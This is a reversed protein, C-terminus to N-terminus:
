PVKGAQQAMDAPYCVELSQGKPQECICGELKMPSCTSPGKAPLAYFLQGTAAGTRVFGGFGLFSLRSTPQVNRIMEPAPAQVSTNGTIGANVTVPSWQYNAVLGGNAGDSLGYVVQVPKSVGMEPSDFQGQVTDISLTETGMLGTISGATVRAETKGDYVKNAASTGVFQLPAKDITLEGQQYTISYNGVDQGTALVNSGYVGANRGSALGSVRIDDGAVFGELLSASQQQTQGNYTVREPRATVSATKPTITLTANGLTVDYNAADAGTVTMASTYQGVHRGSPLAGFSLADGAVFGSGQTGNLSQVLGNYVVTLGLASLSAPRRSINLSANNYTINYNGADAGTASLSSLYSGANRGSALGTAQVDDGAVFGTYTLGTQSQVTGNYVTSSTQAAISANARDMTGNQNNVYTIAYNGSVDANSADVLRVGTVTVTKGSGANKDTFAQTGGFGVKDGAAAGVLTGVTGGGPATTNGDYTKRAASATVVLPAPTIGATSSAQGTISYNGSDAGGFSSSLTVAKNTGAHRTDFQGTATVSLQDGAVIGNFVAGSTQVSAQTNGDYVKDLAQLGSVTIAKPTISGTGSLQASGLVYNAQDAGQLALGSLTFGQPGTNKDTFNGSAFKAQLADGSLTGSPSLTASVLTNNGDYVKTVDSANLSMQLPTITLVGGNVEHGNFQNTVTSSLSALAYTHNGANLYGGSSYTPTGALGTGLTITNGTNDTGQWNSGNTSNLNLTYLNAGNCNSQVLCYQATVTGSAAVGAQPAKRQGYADNQSSITVLLKDAPIVQLNGPTVSVSYNGNLATPTTSLSYVGSLSGVGPFQAGTYNRDGAGPAGGTLANAASEGNVLGTYSFGQNFALNADQTVFMKTDNVKINLAAPNIKGVAGSTSSPLSYNNLDTNTQAAYDVLQLSASVTGTGPNASVNKDAYVAATQTISAGEGSVWGSTAFHANNVTASDLGDYIKAVSGQLAVTIPAKDITSTTNGVLTLTYNGGNNGDQLTANNFTISKTGTGANKDTFVLNAATVTDGSVLQASLAALDAASTSYNLSGDYTKSVPGASLNLAKPTINATTSAQATVTYNGLDTGGLSHTLTVVKDTGVNKDSFAGTSTLSLNDGAVRGDWVVASTALTAQTNGDYTKPAATIGSLSLAKPTIDAQDTMAGTTILQYNRWDGTGNDRSLTLVDQVTVTKNSAVRKDAFSGLGSVSLSEGSLTGSVSGGTISAVTTGDYVKDAATISTLMVDKPTINATTTLAGTTTLNYNSWNGTGNTKTLTSVNAVTVTKNIDANKDSFTGAGSIALTESGVGTSIAGSTITATNNGDYVKHAATISSLSVDKRTIDATTTLAGTTTLNYNNWNGSGNVKTLASVNAVTVTKGNAANADSFTGSGSIGLTESGVGTNITGATISATNNGNYVKHAATIGDLTVDKRTINAQTNLAGTNTLNYNSWNGTGNTKTLTTVDTVTVTKNNAANADSFSGSGSIALTESGVGTSIAGSTITATNNGDYVKDLATISSLSVDKRTINAQTTMGGTTTLNYNSWDGTGNTKTLTSVNAVTVTKGDAANADSFTGSGSIALTESGVGTNIAGSTISATNNSDYVKHAATIGDLTVDKRTIDATTTLAGTTTLNYNNWNGSGNVKTLTSVNAVTVTKGDAANADSFTGSGSIALTESGVGTSIAGSTITATNNGDYVKHAATISSLSVDKRTINAQTTMGGTTTLNYNSWDGSGNTKTLATVDTVSVTKGDAANADSFTGAGSIALTESGVGTNIAGASITATNNGNYVKHAATIGDLTVSKRTITAQTTVPGATTLNYNNWNGTGNTKTLTSVNAVTVTKNIDANKDSFTGSGSIALTESGVGTSIAGTSITATNNGDYVKDLATISSLSVDKRTINAQTTMAGTTTLNYNNWNGSGNAKTLATVDTVSVTKGDAANADSFSGVGSVSLSETGVTGSVVGSTIAAADSGNYVKNAATISSLSVNKRTINATTTIPGTTTLRYNSWSGSGDTQTLTSTLAVTVVKNDAANADSFTGQGSIALTESGVGTSIAGSTITATNFGDYVKNDATISSLSVDKRTINAQTTMPGSNTLQYNSWDGGNAGNVRTLASVDAVTVTKGNGANKDSFSGLGVGSVSLTETGVTGAVVGSAISAADSGDYAKDSATISTLTVAQRTINATTSLGGTTTLNYNSWSGTGNTKTLTSVNAVTVTKNNDANKDSFTGSGSIALTESGVGTSIAGSTITATNNGDYVKHAATISSLTVDKRTINATTTLSGTTTLNYNNWDGTGNAKNLASVNAVTVTKGNAANADSFIGSGSIALTESGVGTSIAGSTINATNNGDYAKHAATISSLSVDKPTINASASATTFALAYNGADTGSLGIQTISVGKGNAANKDVFHATQTFGLNDGSVMDSSSGSVSANTLGDYVKHSATYSVTLSKASINATSTASTNQLSYNGADAGGLAIGNVTVTKSTGVDKNAFTASSHSLSVTDGSIIDASSGTVSALTNGNYTKNDASYSATLNKAWITSTTNDVYSVTYNGGSNGDGVTVGSLSVVKNGTGANKNDFVFTGGSLSDSGFLQTGNTAVATGSASTSRDYTKVVNASTLVLSARTISGNSGTLSNSMGSLHYNGADDGGLTINSITYNLGTGVNKQSFAGTGNISLKDGTVEGTLGVVVNSMATTGDYVKSVGTANPTVAKTNVSLNGVFVPAGVFNGGTVTPSLDKIAYNGVVTQGTSSTSALTNGAYPKLVARVTTGLGDSFTYDNDTGTRNLTIITTNDTKLYKATTVYTPATGYTVSQNTTSILLQDAPVITLTGNTYAIEYNNSSLGKPTLAGTYVGAAGNGADNREVLLTGGLVSSTEGGVLGAHQVGAFNVNDALGVFRADDNAKVTLAAKNIVSNTNDVYNITYNATMDANSADKITVGSARVEKNTGANANLFAQTGASNVVDGAGAGALTGVTGIGSASLTADYTKTVANATVTLNAKDIVLNANNVTINYNTADQGSVVLGSGYTGANKGSAQGAVTITDGAVFGSRTEASQNQVAGNYTVQTSTASVTASKPTISATTSTQTSVTYNGLDAGGLVHSLSVNKLQGVNKDSFEGTSQVTLADGTIKGDFVAGVTSATAATGGDYVKNVATIGSLTIAKPAISATTSLAGSQNLNYNSWVGTGDTRTLATVDAVTVTKNDGANKNNFTGAGSVALTETGVGTTIVGATITANVNGDYTKNSATLSAITVNKPTINASTTFAGTTSMQYNNWSGTGNVPTLTSVDAVSVVKATGVNKNAFSGAATGSLSLTEGNVTGSFSAGTIDATVLGDYVKHGATLNSLSVSQPTIKASATASTNQLSYNLADTGSLSLGSVSVTKTVVQGAGDRAVNADAFSATTHGIVVNDSGIIDASTTGSVTAQSTANYAKDAATATATLAKPTVSVSSGTTTLPNYNSTLGGNTSSGLSLGTVSNLAQSTQVNKSALNTAHGSGTVTFTQGAVGSATLYQGAFTTTADYVRTGSLTLNAKDISLGGHTYGINYNSLLTGGTGTLSLSDNYSGANTGAAYGSISFGDGSQTGVITAGSNTQASGNYTVTNNVGTVTLNAKGITLGGHTYSISYNSLLTSGVAAVSLSDAYATTSANTGTGYGSITFGDGSQTGVITAGTNTQAAGNYTVTNNAGTVTLSRPTVNVSTSATTWNYNSALAGNVGVLNLSGLGQLTQASQVNQSTLTGSGTATFTEGNVGAISTFSSGAFATGADYIKSGTATLNAKGITLSGHTYAISYNSLLTSGTGTLTLSDAYATTSANTGTGYGSITFSDSGQNGSISAGTNTQASGNYTVTNTAGTVTLSRPTVSASTSATTWNYNSALAGSVGVLSLDGLGQLTQASQVNPSALTGSGTATFTEGNVGAISTFNSGAFATGADYVKSGTATLNAKGITLGGQTYNVNYNSLLTSGAAAVSLNDAYATTSANTGAGYGSITFDDSGQKGAITAGTNVQASGSYTVTNNSGTVTLNAKGITLGGHTYSISYNSLLTSGAAAVSLSDAYATTSANTGTGYGSVTFSDSGQTGVITAGTNTQAAGNYTVTNNAGTVTLSRPTVSVSTSATTWNYNSALAGSVGVLSLSGLGQLTQASQVNPSALTGSGTATFTEGNVGAISTFNSGAFATGADYVKSGTATLNAKDIVLNANSVTVSYNGADAGSVALSSAYTGANKGSSLGTVTIADGAIFGNRTETLQNQTSANYTLNTATASVSAAKPTVSVSSATTSLANYNDSLGGNTSTGLALGTVSSLLQGTQVNKSSLNSADGTGTVTFTEGAAGTATLYQGAFTKAADYERTGSLVLNAKNVTLTGNTYALTYGLDSTGTGTLTYTGANKAGQSTGTTTTNVMANTDGNVFGTYTLGNNGSYAQGDYSKSANTFTASLIPSERYIAFLGSGLPATTTNYNTTVEDSNYRSNGALVGLGTSGAVSGTQITIRAGSGATLAGSGSLTVNGGTATGAATSKGAGLLVASSSTNTTSIAQTVSLNADSVLNVTGGTLNIANAVTLNNAAGTISASVNGAGSITNAVTTSAARVYSLNANNSLTVHGAGLTGTTGANGVQLTGGSITTTGAYTNDATLTTTGAGTQSVTGTGSIANSVLLADSRNFILHGNDIVAGTGLTGTTGGNGVQLTGASITTTGSYSNAGTLISTGTGLQTLTGTGSIANAVTMANSRNFVLSANNTVAGTGLTGTTGGSGIQLTGASITTTGSYTNTGTLIQTGSGIKTLGATGGTPTIAGSFTATGATSNYTGAATGNVGVTISGSTSWGTSVTGAGTLADVRINGESGAFTAGAAVNLSSLNNTWQGHNTASGTMTGQRVDILSGALMNFQTATRNWILGGAGTKTITGAGTFVSGRNNLTVGAPSNFDLVAGAAINFQSSWYQSETTGSTATTGLSLTGANVHTQGTYGNNNTLLVTGTGAQTLTGSGNIYNSVTVNNSRNFVLASNTTVSGTGLTGTTGGNGVQLTGATITTAGSYTNNGLLLGTGGAGNQTVTGTGSITSAVTSTGSTNTFSLNSTSDTLTVTSGAAGLSGGTGIALTRGANVTTAGAFASSNGTLTVVGAGAQVLSGAGTIVSANTYAEARNFTLKSGSAISVNTAELTATAAATAASGDGVQVNGANINFATAAVRDRILLHGGGSVNVTGGNQLGFGGQSNQTFALAAFSGDLLATGSTASTLNMNVTANNANFMGTITNTTGGSTSFTNTTGSAGIPNGGLHMTGGGLGGTFNFATNKWWGNGANSLAFTSANEVNVSAPNLQTYTAGPELTLSGGKVTYANSVNSAVAPTAIWSGLTLSGTGAKTFNAANIAGSYTSTGSQTYTVSANKHTTDGIAGAGTITGSTSTLNINAGTGTAGTVKIAAANVVNGNSTINVTAATGSSTISGASTVNVGTNTTTGVNGLLNVNGTATISSAINVANTASGSSTGATLAGTTWNITGTTNDVSVNTGSLAATTSILGGTSQLLLGAGSSIATSATLTNGSQLYVNGTSAATTVAASTTMAGSTTSGIKTTGATIRNLEANSVGLTLPTGTLVDAGGVNILTGATRNQLTVTGTGANISGTPGIYVSDASVTVPANATSTNISSGNVLALAEGSGGGNAAVITVGGNGTASVTGKANIYVGIRYLATSATSGTGDLLIASSSNSSILQTSYTPTGYQSIEIGYAGDNGTSASLGYMAIQGSGANIVNNGSADRLRIGNSRFDYLTSGSTSKGRLTINGGNSLLSAGDLLVGNPNTSNGTAYSAASGASGGGLSINGGNSTIGSGTNMVIAGADNANLDSNLLVNLKGSTGTITTNAAVTIDGYALLSLTADTGATKTVAGNVAINVGSLVSLSSGTNGMNGMNLANIAVNGTATADSRGVIVTGATIRALEASSIGLKLTATTVDASTGGVDLLTGATRNQVTVTGSGASLTSTSEMGLSDTTLTVAANGSSAVSGSSGLYIGSGTASNAVRSGTIQISGTQSKVSGSSTIEVGHNDNGTSSAGVGVVSVSGSGTGEVTASQQIMVGSNTGYAGSGGGTGNLSIAGPSTIKVSGGSLWVGFNYLAGNGGTGTLSVTGGSSGTITTGNTLGVGVNTSSVNANGGIGNIQINGSGSTSLVAGSLDVGRMDSVNAFTTNGRGKISINGGAASLTGGTIAVGTYRTSANYGYSYGTGNGASGGGLTINGGNSTIGSGTNMVIAGASNADFDSNLTVNLNGSTSTITTNAAVVINNHARLTLSAFSGSTKAISTNVNINGADSGSASTTITVSTGDNLSAQIDSARVFSTAGATYAYSGGTVNPDTYTTGSTTTGITIDSPDLLWEAAKVRTGTTVLHDGSTEVFGRQSELKAGSADTSKALVGTEEDRGIFIDGGKRLQGQDDQGSSNATISGDVKIQGGDALLHVAGAQAGSTDIHGSHLVSAVAQGLAAAQM